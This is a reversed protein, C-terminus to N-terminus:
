VEGALEEFAIWWVRRCVNRGICVWLLHVGCQRLKELGSDVVCRPVSTSGSRAEGGSRFLLLTLLCVGCAVIGVAFGVAQRGGVACWVAGVLLARGCGAACVRMGPLWWWMVGVSMRMWHKLVRVGVLVVCISTSARGGARWMHGGAPFVVRVGFSFETAERGAFKSGVVSASRRKCVGGRLRCGDFSRRGSSRGVAPGLSRLGACVM